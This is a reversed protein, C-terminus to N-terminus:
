RQQGAVVGLCLAVSWALYTLNKQVPIRAVDDLVDDQLIATLAHSRAWDQVVPPNTGRTMTLTFSCVDGVNRAIGSATKVQWVIKSVGFDGTSVDYGVGNNNDARYQALSFCDPERTTFSADWTYYAASAWSSVLFLLAALAVRIV